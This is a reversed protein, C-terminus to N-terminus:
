GHYAHHAPMGDDEREDDAMVDVAANLAGARPVPSNPGLEGLVSWRVCQVGGELSVPCFAMAQRGGLPGNVEHFPRQAAPRICLATFTSAQTGPLSCTDATTETVQGL